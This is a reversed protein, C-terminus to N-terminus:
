PKVLVYLVVLAPDYVHIAVGDHHAVGLRDADVSAGVVLSYRCFGDHKKKRKYDSRYYITEQGLMERAGPAEYVETSFIQLSYKGYQIAELRPVPRRTSLLSFM